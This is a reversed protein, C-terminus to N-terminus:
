VVSAVGTARQSYTSPLNPPSEAAIVSFVPNIAAASKTSSINRPAKSPPRITATNRSHTSSTKMVAAATKKEDKEVGIKEAFRDNDIFRQLADSM